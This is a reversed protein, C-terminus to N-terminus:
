KESKLPGMKEFPIQEFDPLTEFIESSEKLKFNQNEFDVFGPDENTILNNDSFDLFQKDANVGEDVKLIIQGVNVFVNGDIKNRKPFSPDEEWYKALEPYRTSYPPQNYHIENLKQDVVGGVAVMPKAWEFAQM